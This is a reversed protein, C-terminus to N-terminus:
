RPPVIEGDVSGALIPTQDRNQRSAADQVKPKLYDYLARVGVAGTADAAEGGLGRLFHYTFLGHGSEKLAAAIEGGSAAAFVTVKGEAAPAVDVKAVLPRAGEALVSRGGAGSFCSDLVVLVQRAKLEGLGAYLKKLPYATKNLFSPSGDWPVLFAQGTAPDPAGHGSFYVFVRSDEKVNRPLWEELYASLASQLARQGVLFKLNREPVGLALLHERVARADSEAFPADPLGEAYKEVGVVLAFDNPREALRRAPVDVGPLTSAAPASAPAPTAAVSARPPLSAFFARDDVIDKVLKAIAHDVASSEADWWGSGGVMNGGARSVQSASYSKLEDGAPSRVAVGGKVAVDWYTPFLPSLLGMTLVIPVMKLNYLPDTTVIRMLRPFLIIDAGERADEGARVEKFVRAERLVQAFRELNKRGVAAAGTEIIPLDQEEYVVGARLPLPASTSVPFSTPAPPRVTASCGALLVAAMACRSVGKM